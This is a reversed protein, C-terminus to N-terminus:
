LGPEVGVVAAFGAGRPDVAVTCTDPRAPV